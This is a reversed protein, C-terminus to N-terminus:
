AAEAPTEAPQEPTPEPATPEPSGGEGKKDAYAKVVRAFGVITANLVRAFSSIPAQFTAAVTGLMEQRTPLLALAKAGADNLVTGESYAAKIKFYKSYKKAIEQITKAAVPAEPAFAFASPGKLYKKIDNEVGNERAIIQMLTNKYVTLTVGAKRCQRRADTIPAAPMLQTDVIVFGGSEKWLKRIEELQQTKESKTKL